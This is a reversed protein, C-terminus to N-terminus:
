AVYVIFQGDGVNFRTLRHRVYVLIHRQGHNVPNRLAGLKDLTIRPHVIYNPQVAHGVNFRRTPRCGCQHQALMLQRLLFYRDLLLLQGPEGPSKM